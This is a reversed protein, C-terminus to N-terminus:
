IKRKLIKIKLGWKLNKLTYLDGIKVYKAEEPVSLSANYSKIEKTYNDLIKLNRDYFVIYPHWLNSRSSVLNISRAGQVDLWYPKLPRRLSVEKNYPIKKVAVKAHKINVNYRWNEKSYRKVSTFYGGRKQLAKALSLPDVMSAARLTVKWLFGSDDYMAKTTLTHDYGLANLIDKMSKVFLLPNKEATAFTLELTRTRRFRMDLLKNEKLRKLVKLIDVQNGRLFDSKQKFLVSILGKKTAYSSPGIIKKVEEHISNASAFTIFLSVILLYKVM